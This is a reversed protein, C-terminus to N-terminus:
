QLHLSPQLPTFSAFIFIFVFSFSSHYLFTFTLRVSAPSSPCIVPVSPSPCVALYLRRPVLACLSVLALYHVPHSTSLYISLTSIRTRVRELCLQLHAGLRIYPNGFLNCPELLLINRYFVQTLNLSVWATIRDSCALTKTHHQLAQRKAEYNAESDYIIIFVIASGRTQKKSASELQQTAATQRSDAQESVASSPPRDQACLILLICACGAVDLGDLAIWGTVVLGLWDSCTM